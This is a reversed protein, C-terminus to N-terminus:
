RQYSFCLISRTRCRAQGRRQLAGCVVPAYFRCVTSLFCLYGLGLYSPPLVTASCEGHFRRTAAASGFSLPTALTSCGDDDRGSAWVGVWSGVRRWHIM